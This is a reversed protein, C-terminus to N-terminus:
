RPADRYDRRGWRALDVVLQVASVIVAILLALMLALLTLSAIADWAPAGFAFPFVRYILGTVVLAITNLVAQGLHRFWRADYVIFLANGVMSAAISFEIAPLVDDFAPTLFPVGWARANHVIFYFLANCVIAAVYGARRGVRRAEPSREWRRRGRKFVYATSGTDGLNTLPANTNM